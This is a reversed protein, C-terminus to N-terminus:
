PDYDGARSQNPEEVKVKQTRLQLDICEAPGAWSLPNVAAFIFTMALILFTSVLNLLDLCESSTTDDYSGANVRAPRKRVYNEQLPKPIQFSFQSLTVGHVMYEPHELLYRQDKAATAVRGPASCYNPKILQGSGAEMKLFILQIMVHCMLGGSVLNSLSLGVSPLVRSPANTTSYGTFSPLRYQIPDPVPEVETAVIQQLADLYRPLSSGTLDNEEKNAQKSYARLVIGFNLPNWDFTEQSGLKHFIISDCGALAKNLTTCLLVLSNSEPYTAERKGFVLGAGLFAGGTGFMTM